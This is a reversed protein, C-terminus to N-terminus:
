SVMAVGRMVWLMGVGVEGFIDLEEEALAVELGRGEYAM